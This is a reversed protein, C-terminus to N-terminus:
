NRPREFKVGLRDGSRWVVHCVRQVAEVGGILLSFDDPIDRAEFFELQAGGDSIDVTFGDWQVADPGVVRVPYAFSRRPYKRRGPGTDQYPGDPM